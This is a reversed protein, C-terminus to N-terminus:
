ITFSGWCVSAGLIYKVEPKTWYDVVRSNRLLQNFHDWKKGILQPMGIINNRQVDALM